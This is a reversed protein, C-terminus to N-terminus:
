KNTYKLGQPTGQKIIKTQLSKTVTVSKDVSCQKAVNSWGGGGGSQRMMSALSSGRSSDPPTTFPKDDISSQRSASRSEFQDFFSYSSPM